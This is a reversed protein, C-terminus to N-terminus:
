DFQHCIPCCKSCFWADADKSKPFVYEGCVLCENTPDGFMMWMRDHRAEINEVGYLGMRKLIREHKKMESKGNDAM